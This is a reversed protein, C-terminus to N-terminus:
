VEINQWTEGRLQLFYRNGCSQGGRVTAQNSRIGQSSKAPVEQAYLRAVIRM